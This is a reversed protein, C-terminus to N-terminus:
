NTSHRPSWAPLAGKASSCTPSCHVEVNANGYRDQWDGPHDYGLVDQLFAIVRRQAHAERYGVDNM